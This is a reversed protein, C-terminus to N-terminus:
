RGEKRENRSEREAEYARLWTRVANDSVGYKRGVALFGLTQTEAALQTTPRASSRADSLARHTLGRTDPAAPVRASASRPTSPRFQAGCRLCRRPLREIRNRRGCHTDLTAACNACVIRLNELRNDNGVGNIHDLILAMPQGNWVEDQGCLECRREKVGADYLRQKLAGRNYTSGSVLIESLPRAKSPRGPRLSWNPNFHSTSIGYHEIHRWITRPNGGGTRLGLRRLVAAM